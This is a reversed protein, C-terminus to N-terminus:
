YIRVNGNEESTFKFAKSDSLSLLLKNLPLNNFQATYQYTKLQPNSITIQTNYSRSLIEVIQELAMHNFTFNLNTLGMFYDEAIRQTIIGNVGSAVVAQQGPIIFVSDTHTSDITSVRVKGTAVSVKVEDARQSEIYFSTGVVRTEVNRSKIIFPKNTNHAVEFFANGALEVERLKNGFVSPVRLSSGTNLWISTNDPLVIHKRTSDTVTYETWTISNVQAYPQQITNKHGILAGVAMIITVSVAMSWAIIRRQKKQISPSVAREINRWLTHRIIRWETPEMPKKPETGKRKFWTELHERESDDAKGTLIKRIIIAIKKDM